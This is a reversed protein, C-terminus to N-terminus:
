AAEKAHFQEPMCLNRKLKAIMQAALEIIFEYSNFDEFTDTETRYIITVNDDSTIIYYLLLIRQEEIDYVMDYGRSILKTELGTASYSDVQMTALHIARECLLGNEKIHEPFIESTFQEGAYFHYNYVSYEKMEAAPIRNMVSFASGVLYGLEDDLDDSMVKQQMCFDLLASEISDNIIAFKMM